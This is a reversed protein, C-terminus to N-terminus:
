GKVVALTIIIGLVGTMVALSLAWTYIDAQTASSIILMDDRRENIPRRKPKNKRRALTTTKEKKTM